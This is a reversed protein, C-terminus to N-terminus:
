LSGGAALEIKSAALTAGVETGSVKDFTQIELRRSDNRKVRTNAYTAVVRAEGYEQGEFSVLLRKVQQQPNYALKVTKGILLSPVEYLTGNLTITSDKYVKRQEEHLFVRELDIGPELPLIYKTKALWAELPTKGGLGKHPNRHYEGELWSRFRANLDGLGKVTDKDLPRLFADRLTRFYREVKGRGAPKGPRSHSILIGLIDCIRQTQGSVFPSGNDTYLRVIKGHAKLIHKIGEEFALSHEKHSFNAYVVRRTADDLFAILLAKRMQGKSDAVPFAHMFDVQICELPSYFDFKLNKESHCKNLRAERQMGSSVILRSLTSSSVETTLKGEEKLKKYAATATLNPRSDLYDLLVSVEHHPLRRSVGADARVKPLLGAKGYKRFLHLWHKICASTITSKTSCPIQYERGAKEKIQRAVEGHELYPNSLEAIIAYRFDCIQQRKLEEDKNM